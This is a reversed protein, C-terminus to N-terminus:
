IRAGVKAHFNPRMTLIWVNRLTWLSMTALTPQRFGFLHHEYDYDSCEVVLGIGYSCPRARHLSRNSVVNSDELAFPTHKLVIYLLKSM